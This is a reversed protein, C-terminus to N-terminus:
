KLGFPVLMPRVTRKTEAEYKALDDRHVWIKECYVVIHRNKETQDLSALWELDLARDKKGDPTYLLYYSTGKYEGIKGTKEHITNRDRDRSTETYVIYKALEEYPPLKHGLDRYEGFLPRGVTAYTFSGGLGTVKENKGSDSKGRPSVTYGKIVRRIREGTIQACINLKVRENAKTDDGNLYNCLDALV